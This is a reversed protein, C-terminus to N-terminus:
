ADTRLRQDHWERRKTLFIYTGSAIGFLGGIFFYGVTVADVGIYKGLLWTACGLMIAVTVAQILFPEQKHARLYLAESFVIHNMITTLLLLAFAWGPLVRSALKPFHSGAAILVVLFAAAGCVLLTTSQWLTRFFLRDLKEIEGRAVLTGFPSAKTNIWAMAVAGIAAAISLSMGMQGAAVPGQYAFLVPTFLQFIFYGCLWSVAIRWQFPWIETRWGVFHEQVKYTLLHKIMKRRPATLLFIIGMAVQGAILMAPAFLGHHLILATWALLSAVIAQSLRMRAVQAVSGCGEIFSFVPDIQFTITAAGVLV